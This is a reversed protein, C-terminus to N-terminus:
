PKFIVLAGVSEAIVQLQDHSLLFTKRSHGILCTENLNMWGGVVFSFLCVSPYIQGETVAIEGIRIMIFSRTM